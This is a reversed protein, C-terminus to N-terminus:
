ALQTTINLTVTITNTLTQGEWEITETTETINGDEVCNVGLQLLVAPEIAVSEL